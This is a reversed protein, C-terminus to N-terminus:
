ILPYLLCCFVCVYLVSENMWKVYVDKATCQAVTFLYMSTRRPLVTVLQGRNRSLVYGLEPSQASGFSVRQTSQVCM